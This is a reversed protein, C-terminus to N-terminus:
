GRTRRPGRRGRRRTRQDKYTPRPLPTTWTYNKRKRRIKRQIPTLNPTLKADEPTLDETMTTTLTADKQLNAPATITSKENDTAALRPSALHPQWSSEDLNCSHNVPCM